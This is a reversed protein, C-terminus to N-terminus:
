AEGGESMECFWDALKQNPSKRADIAQAVLDAIRELSYHDDNRLALLTLAQLQVISASQKLLDVCESPMDSNPFGLVIQTFDHIAEICHDFLENRTSHRPRKIASELLEDPFKSIEACSRSCFKESYDPEADGCDIGLRTGCNICHRQNTTKDNM